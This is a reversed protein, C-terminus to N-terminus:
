RQGTLTGPEAGSVARVSQARYTFNARSSGNGPASGGKQSTAAALPDPPDGCIDCPVASMRERRAAIRVRFGPRRTRDAVSRRLLRALATGPQHAHGVAQAGGG